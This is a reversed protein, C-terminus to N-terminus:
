TDMLICATVKELFSGGVDEGRGILVLFSEECM